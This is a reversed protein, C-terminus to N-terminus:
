NFTAVEKERLVKPQKISPSIHPPASSRPHVHPPLFTIVGRCFRTCSSYLAGGKQGNVLSRTCPGDFGCEEVLLGRGKNLDRNFGFLEAGCVVFSLAAPM